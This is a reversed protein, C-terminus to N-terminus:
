HITPTGSSADFSSYAGDPVQFKFREGKLERIASLLEFADEDIKGNGSIRWHVVAEPHKDLLEMDKALQTRIEDTMRFDRVNKSERLVVRDGAVFVHDVTRGGRSTRFYVQAAGDEDFRAAFERLSIAGSDLENRLRTREAQDSVQETEKEPSRELEMTASEEGAEGRRRAAELTTSGRSPRNGAARAEGATMFEGHKVGKEYYYSGQPHYIGSDKNVLVPTSSTVGPPFQNAPTPTSESDSEVTSDPETGPTDDPETGFDRGTETEADGSGTTRETDTPQGDGTDSTGEVDAGDGDSDLARGDDVSGTFKKAIDEPLLKLIKSTQKAALGLGKSGLVELIVEFALQGVIQALAKAFAAGELSALKDMQSAQQKGAYEGLEEATDPSAENMLWQAFAIGDQISAPLETLGVVGQQVGVALGELWAAPHRLQYYPAWQLKKGLAKATEPKGNSAVGTVMGKLFFSLNYLLNMQKVIDQIDALFESQIVGAREDRGRGRDTGEASEPPSRSAGRSRDSADQALQVGFREVLQKEGPEDINLGWRTGPPPQYNPDRYAPTFEMMLFNVMEAELEPSVEGFRKRLYQKWLRRALQEVVEGERATGVVGVGEATRVLEAEQGTGATAKQVSPSQQLQVGPVPGAPQSAAHQPDSHTEVQAARESAAAEFRDGESGVVTSDRRGSRQQVVHSVEHAVLSPSPPRRFVVSDGTTYAEAGLREAAERARADVHATITSLDVDPFVPSLAAAHPLPQGPGSVGTRAVATEPTDVGRDFVSVSDAKDTPEGDGAEVLARVSQNGVTRHLDTARASSSGEAREHERNADRDSPSASDRESASRKRKM